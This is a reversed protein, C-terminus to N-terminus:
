TEFMVMNKKYLLYFYDTRLERDYFLYPTDIIHYSIIYQGHSKEAILILFTKTTWEVCIRLQQQWFFPYDKLKYDSSHFIM